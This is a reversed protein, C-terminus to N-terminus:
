LPSTSNVSFDTALSGAFYPCWLISNFLRLGAWTSDRVDTTVHMCLELILTPSITTATVTTNSGSVRAANLGVSGM